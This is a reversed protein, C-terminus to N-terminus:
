TGAATLHGRGCRRLRTLPYAKASRLDNHCEVDHRGAGPQVEVGGNPAPVITVGV